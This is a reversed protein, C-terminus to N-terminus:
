NISINIIEGGTTEIDYVYVGRINMMSTKNPNSIIPQKVPPSFYFPNSNISNNDVPIMQKNSKLPWYSRIRCNGGHVSKIVLNEIKNNRWTLDLIEFGGRAMLGKIRGDKWKDPLAPLIHIAGDHSQLLMEAIGSTFGFNGDIQFPPHADFMNPYTGGKGAYDINNYDCNEVLSIQDTILKLAHNGDQLRAWLNIKWNMSWGTSPDGRHILSTRAANFLEPTRYPSIQNSPYLGYLHSVHRHHDDPNDWDQLWEQLQGFRGIQMPPLKSLAVQLSDAFSKDSNLISAAKITKSFLDFVLQNDLTTGAAIVKWQKRIMYPANEPSMSPSVVLWNHTPEETLFYLFFRSAGKLAPYVAALYNTDSNFAYQEWLHQSLWAGGCPWLGPSGDIAGTFRWIDTNHHAVWGLAHYMKRATEQGTVSLEKVMTILPEHMETLNTVEAPWYNMETNINITYKSDWPPFLQNNWLGQLTTPQGGPQSSSILLYRGYQFYLAVLQPDNAQAFEKIRVDTPKNLSDTVGLNIKVRDFYKKYYLIHKNRIEAYNKNLAANLHNTALEYPNGSIDDYKKFNTAISIYVLVSSAGSVALATDKSVISGETPVIKVLTEFKVQGKISEHDSTIGSMRLVNNQEISIISKAPRNINAVFSISKPKNATIKMVIVQDPFSAFVERGYVVDGVKYTSFTIASDLSLSRHYNTYKEHGPFTLFLDGVTQYPMGQSSESTMTQCALNEAEVFKDDFILKRLHELSGAIKPNDNRYPSGAWVTNENLQIQEQDPNGFVMAGLRGNGIPLASVWSTAPQNYSLENPSFRENNDNKFSLSILAFLTFQILNRM